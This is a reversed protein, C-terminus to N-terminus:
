CFEGQSTNPNQLYVANEPANGGTKLTVVSLLSVMRIELRYKGFAYRSNM